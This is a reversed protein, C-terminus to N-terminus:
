HIVGSKYLELLEKAYNIEETTWGNKTALDIFKQHAEIEGLIRNQPPMWNLLRNQQAHVLEEIIHFRSPNRPFYFIGPRGPISRYGAHANIASLEKLATEDGVHVIYGQKELASVLKEFKDQPYLPLQSPNVTEKIVQKGFAGETAGGLRGLLKNAIQRKGPVIFFVDLALSTYDLGKQLGSTKVIMGRDNLTDGTVFLRTSSGAVPLVDEYATAGIGEYASVAYSDSGARLSNQMINLAKNWMSSSIEYGLKAGPNNWALPSDFGLFSSVANIKDQLWGINQAQEESCGYRDVGNVPDGNTLAYLNVGGNEGIPDRSIWKCTEPAYWRLGYDYLGLASDYYKTQFGFPCHVTTSAQVNSSACNRGYPDKAPLVTEKGTSADVLSCVTGKADMLPF